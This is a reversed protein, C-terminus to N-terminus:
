ANPIRKKHEKNQLYTVIAMVFCFLAFILMVGQSIFLNEKKYPEKLILIFIFGILFLSFFVWSIYKMKENKKYELVIDSLQFDSIWGKKRIVELLEEAESSTLGFGIRVPMKIDAFNFTISGGTGKTFFACIHTWTSLRYNSNICLNRIYEIKYVQGQYSNDYIVINKKDIIITYQKKSQWFIFRSGLFLGTALGLIMAFNSHLIHGYNYGLFGSLCVVSSFIILSVIIGWLNVKQATINVVIEDDFIQIKHTNMDNYKLNNIFRSM